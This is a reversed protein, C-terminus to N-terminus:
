PFKCSVWTQSRDNQASRLPTASDGDPAATRQEFRTRLRCSIRRSRASHCTERTAPTSTGCHFTMRRLASRLRLIEMRRRQEKNLVCECGAPSEAVARLIVPKEQQPLPHGVTFHNVGTMRRPAFRLRLIEMRRRQGENLVCECDAPSEAVASREACFSPQSPFRIPTGHQKGETGGQMSIPTGHTTYNLPHPMAHTPAPDPPTCRAHSAPLRARLRCPHM